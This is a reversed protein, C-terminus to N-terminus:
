PEISNRILLRVNNLWVKLYILYSPDGTGENWQFGLNLLTQIDKIEVELEHQVKVNPDDTKVQTLDIQCIQHEYSLRDKIRRYHPLADPPPLPAPRELNVSVRFDFLRSPCTIDLSGLKLKVISEKIEGNGQSKTVRIQHDYFEDIDKSHSYKIKSGLYHAENTEMVRLNLLENFSRHQSETMNTEFRNSELNILASENEVPFYMREDVTGHKPKITGLKAEVEILHGENRECYPKAHKWIFRGISAVFDDYAGIGFISEELGQLPNSPELNMSLNPPIPKIPEPLLEQHTNSHHDSQIFQNTSLSIPKQPEPNSLTPTISPPRSHDSSQHSEPISHNYDSSDSEQRISPNTTSNSLIIPHSVSRHPNILDTSTTSPRSHSLSLKQHSLNPSNNESNSQYSSHSNSNSKFRKSPRSHHIQNSPPLPSSPNLLSALSKSSTSKSTTSQSRIPEM